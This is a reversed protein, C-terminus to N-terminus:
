AALQEERLPQHTVAAWLFGCLERAVAVNAVTSRKGNATLTHHRHNLRLQAQWARATVAAPVEPALARARASLRPPHQYHWAAEILLRRAHRNGCKTIHGRHQQDGSSYESPTLGLYSMLERPHSFRRFDGIEAILGLATLLGIGRFSCLWRVPDCWPEARAVQCLEHEIAALQADLASLHSLMHCLARQALADELQQRRLWTEHQKTWAQKGERYVHGHRLLQKAVQHRAATRARRLDDRARVLDRLGEQAPSPPEVFSLEGARYLRVLKKADRRDTKVRDGARVPVLSPAIVDCAVGMASLLRFLDYGCPGAEYAVALRERDGLRAVFRRVARATNEVRTVRPTGGVAPLVGAVLSNKHVDFVVWQDVDAPATSSVDPM